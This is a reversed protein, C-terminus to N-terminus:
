FLRAFEDYAKLMGKKFALLCALLELCSLAPVVYTLTVSHGQRCRAERWDYVGVDGWAQVLVVGAAVAFWVAVGDRRYSASM